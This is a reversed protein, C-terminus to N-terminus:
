LIEWDWEDERGMVCWYTGNCENGDLPTEYCKMSNSYLCGFKSWGRRVTWDTGYCEIGFLSAEVQLWRGLM